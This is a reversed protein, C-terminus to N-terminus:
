QRPNYTVPLDSKARPVNANVMSELKADSILMCAPAGRRMEYSSFILCLDINPILGSLNPCLIQGLCGSSDALRGGGILCLGGM